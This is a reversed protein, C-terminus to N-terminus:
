NSNSADLPIEYVKKELYEWNGNGISEYSTWAVKLQDESIYFKIRTEVGNSTDIDPVLVYDFTYITHKEAWNTTDRYYIEANKQPIKILGLLRESEETGPEYFYCDDGISTLYLQNAEVATQFLVDGTQMDLLLLTSQNLYGNIYGNYHPISWIESSVWITGGKDGAESRITSSGMQPYEYLVVGNEDLIRLDYSRSKDFNESKQSDVQYSTGEVPAIADYVYPNRTYGSPYIVEYSAGGQPTCGSLLAMAMGIFCIPYKGRFVKKM